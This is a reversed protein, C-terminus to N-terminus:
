PNAVIYRMCPVGGKIVYVALVVCLARPIPRAWHQKVMGCM